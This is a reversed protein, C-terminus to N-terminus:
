GSCLGPSSLHFYGIFIELAARPFLSCVYLFLVFVCVCMCVCVRARTFSETKNLKKYASVYNTLSCGSFRYEIKFYNSHARHDWLFYFAVRYM